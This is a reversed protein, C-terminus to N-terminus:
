NTAAGAETQSLEEGTCFDILILQAGCNSCTEEQSNAVCSCEDWKNEKGVCLCFPESKCIRQLSDPDDGRNIAGNIQAATLNPM